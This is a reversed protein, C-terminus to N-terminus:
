AVIDHSSAWRGGDFPISLVPTESIRKRRHLMHLGRAAQVVAEERRFLLFVEPEPEKRTVPDQLPSQSDPDISM